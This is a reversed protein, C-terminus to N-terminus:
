FFKIQANLYWAINQNKDFSMFYIQVRYMIKVLSKNQAVTYFFIMKFSECVKLNHYKNKM